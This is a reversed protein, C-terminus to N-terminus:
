ECPELLRFTRVRPWPPRGTMLPLTNLAAFAQQMHANTIEYTRCQHCLEETVEFFARQNTPIDDRSDHIDAFAALYTQALAMARSLKDIPTM